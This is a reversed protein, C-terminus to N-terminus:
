KYLEIVYAKLFRVLEINSVDEIPFQFDRKIACLVNSLTENTNHIYAIKKIYLSKDRLAYQTEFYKFYRSVLFKVAEKNFICRNLYVRITLKNSKLYSTDNPFIRWETANEKIYDILIRRLKIDELIYQLIDLDNKFLHILQEIVEECSLKCYSLRKDSDVNGIRKGTLIFRDYKFYFLFFEDELQIRLSHKLRQIYKVRM